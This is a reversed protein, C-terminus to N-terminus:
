QENGKRAVARERMSQCTKSVLDVMADHDRFRFVLQEPPTPLHRCRPRPDHRPHEAEEDFEGPADTQSDRKPIEVIWGNKVPMISIQQREALRLYEHPNM